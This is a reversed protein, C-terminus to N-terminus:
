PRDGTLSGGALKPYRDAGEGFPGHCAACQDMYIEAGQKVAGQGPPLGQGDPRVSIAWGAIEEQTPARGYGYYGPPHEAALVGTSGCACVLLVVALSHSSSM